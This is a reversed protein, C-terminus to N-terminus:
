IKNLLVALLSFQLGRIYIYTTSSTICFIYAEIQEPSQNSILKFYKREPSLVTFDLIFNRFLRERQKSEVLVVVKLKKCEKPPPSTKKQWKIDKKKHTKIKQSSSQSNNRKKNEMCIDWVLAQTYQYKFCYLRYTTKPRKVLPSPFDLLSLTKEGM